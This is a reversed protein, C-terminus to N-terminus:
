TRCIDRSNIAISSSITRLGLSATARHIAHVAIEFIVLIRSAVVVSYMVNLPM